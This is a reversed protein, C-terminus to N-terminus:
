TKNLGDSKVSWFEPTAHFQVQKRPLFLVELTNFVVPASGGAPTRELRDRVRKAPLHGDDVFGVAEQGHVLGM